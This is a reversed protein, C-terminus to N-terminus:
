SAVAVVFLKITLSKAVGPIEGDGIKLDNIDVCINGSEFETNQKYNLNKRLTTRFIPLSYM